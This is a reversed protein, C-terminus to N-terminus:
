YPMVAVDERLRFCYRVMTEESVFPPYVSEGDVEEAEM